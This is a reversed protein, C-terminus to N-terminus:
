FTKTVGWTIYGVRGNGSKDTVYNTTDSPIADRHLVKTVDMPDGWNTIMLIQDNTIATPSTFIRMDRMSWTFYRSSLRWLFAQVQPNIIHAASLFQTAVVKSWWIITILRFNTWDREIWWIFDTRDRFWTWLVRTSEASWMWADYRIRIANDTNRIYVYWYWLNLIPNGSADNLADVWPKIRWSIYRNVLPWVYWGINPSNDYLIENVLFVRVNRVQLTPNTAWTDNIVFPVIWTWATSSTFTQTFTFEQWTTTATQNTSWYNAVNAHTIWLRFLSTWSPVKVFAKIIFTKSALSSWTLSTIIADEIWQTDTWSINVTDATMTWDPATVNNATVTTAWSKWWVSMDKPNAVGQWNILNDPRYSAVITPDNNTNNGLAIDADIEAQTLARARVRTHYVQLPTSWTNSWWVADDGIIFNQSWWFTAAAVTTWWANLLTSTWWSVSIYAYMKYAVPDFVLYWDYLTNTNSNYAVDTLTAGNRIRFAIQNVWAVNAAYIATINQRGFIWCALTSPIVGNFKFRAKITFATTHNLTLSSTATASASTWSSLTKNGNCFIYKWDADTATTVNGSVNLNYWTRSIAQSTDTTDWTNVLWSPTVVSRNSAWEAQCEADSLARNWLSFNYLRWYTPQAGTTSWWWWLNSTNATNNSGTVFSTWSKTWSIFIDADWVVRATWSPLTNNIRVIVNYIAWPTITTTSSITISWTWPLYVRVAWSTFIDAWWNATYSALAQINLIDDLQWVFKMTQVSRNDLGHVASDWINFYWGYCQRYDRTGDNLKRVVGWSYWVQQIYGTSWNFKFSKKGAPKGRWLRAISALNNLNSISSM